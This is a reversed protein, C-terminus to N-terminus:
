TFIYHKSVISMTDDDDIEEDDTDAPVFDPGDGELEQEMEQEKETESEVEVESEIEEENLANDFAVQPINYM